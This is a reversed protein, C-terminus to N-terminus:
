PCLQQDARWLQAGRQTQRQSPHHVRFVAHPFHQRVEEVVQRALNTRSDYMTMVLGRVVLGPNLNQRVLEITQLLQSLGELPLYECQVPM